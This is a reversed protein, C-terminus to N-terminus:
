LGEEHRPYTWPSRPSRPDYDPNSPIVKLHTFMGEHPAIGMPANPMQNMIHHLVHCHIRWTGPNWAVLEIDRTEGPGITVTVDKWRASNPLPGGGTGVVEFVYGHVHIPHFMLSLNTFRIRVRDGQAVELDPFAPATKGNFTAFSPEMANVNPHPNGPNFTWQQLMVAFDKDVRREWNRPHVVFIGGLGLGEQKMVNFGSHYMRTGPRLVDFEYVETGGPLVPRRAEFSHYGSAGDQSFPLEFGHWHISTPEPLENRLVVRVRDGETAELTPGPCSGNYGWALMTKARTARPRFREAGAPVQMRRTQEVSRDDVLTIEVPQAVLEFVKIGDQVTYGLPAIGPTEVRGMQRGTLPPPPSLATEPDRRPFRDHLPNMDPEHAHGGVSPKETSQEGATASRGVSILGATAASLATLFKRRTFTELKSM